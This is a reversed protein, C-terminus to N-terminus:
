VSAISCVKSPQIRLCRASSFEDNVLPGIDTGPGVQIVIDNYVPKLDKSETRPCPETVVDASVLHLTNDDQQEVILQIYKSM